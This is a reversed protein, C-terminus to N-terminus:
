FHRCKRHRIFSYPHRKPRIVIVSPFRFVKSLFGWSFAERKRWLHWTHNFEPRRTSLVAVFPSFWPVAKQCVGSSDVECGCTFHRNYYGLYILKVSDSLVRCFHSPWFFLLLSLMIFNVIFDPEPGSFSTQITRSLILVFTNVLSSIL